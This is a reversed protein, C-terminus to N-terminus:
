INTDALLIHYFTITFGLALSMNEATVPDHFLLSTAM